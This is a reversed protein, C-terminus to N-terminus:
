RARDRGSRARRGRALAERAEAVADREHLRGEAVDGLRERREADCVTSPSQASRPTLEGCSSSAARPMLKRRSPGISMRMSGLSPSVASSSM